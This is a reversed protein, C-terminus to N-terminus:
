SQQMIYAAKGHGVHDEHFRGIQAGAFHRDVFPMALCAGTHQFIDLAEAMDDGNDMCVMFFPVAGTIGLPEFAYVDRKAGPDNGYGIMIIFEDIGADLLPLFGM